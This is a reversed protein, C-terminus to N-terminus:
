GRKGTKRTKKAVARSKGSGMGMKRVRQKGRLPGAAKRQYQAM